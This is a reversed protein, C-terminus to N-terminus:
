HTVIQYGDATLSSQDIIITKAAPDLTIYQSLMLLRDSILENVLKEMTPRSVMSHERVPATREIVSTGCLEDLGMFVSDLETNDSPNSYHDTGPEYTYIGSKRIREMVSYPHKLGYKSRIMDYAATKGETNYINIIEPFMSEKIVTKGM